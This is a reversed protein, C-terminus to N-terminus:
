GSFLICVDLIQYRIIETRCYSHPAHLNQLVARGFDSKAHSMSPVPGTQRRVLHLSNLELTFQFMIISMAEDPFMHPSYGFSIQIGAELGRM